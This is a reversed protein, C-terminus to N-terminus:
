EFSESPDKQSNEQSAGGEEPHAALDPQDTAQEELILNQNLAITDKERQNNLPEAQKEPSKMVNIVDETVDTKPEEAAEHKEQVHKVEKNGVFVVPFHRDEDIKAIRQLWVLELPHELEMEEVTIKGTFINVKGIKRMAQYTHLSVVTVALLIAQWRHISTAFPLISGPIIATLQVPFLMMAGTVFSMMLSLVTVWYLFKEDPKYRGFEPPTANQDFFMKIMAVIGRADVKDFFLSPGHMKVFISDLVIYLHLSLLMTALAAAVRHIIQLNDIGGALSILSFALSQDSFTQLLGTVALASVSVLLALHQIVQFKTFRQVSGDGTEIQALVAKAARVDKLTVKSNTFLSSKNKSVAPKITAKKVPSQEM